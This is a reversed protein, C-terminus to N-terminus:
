SRNEALGRYFHAHASVSMTSCNVRYSPTGIPVDQTTTQTLDTAHNGGTQYRINPPSALNRIIDFIIHLVNAVPNRLAIAVVNLNWSDPLITHGDGPSALTLRCAVTPLM